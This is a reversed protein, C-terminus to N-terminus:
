TRDFTGLEHRALMEVEVECGNCVDLAVDKMYGSFAGGDKGRSRTKIRVLRLTRLERGEGCVDCIHQTITAM